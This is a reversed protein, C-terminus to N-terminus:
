GYYRHKNEYLHEEQYIFLMNESLQPPIDNKSGVKCILNPIQKRWYAIIEKFEELSKIPFDIYGYEDESYTGRNQVVRVADYRVLENKWEWEIRELETAHTFKLNGNRTEIINM